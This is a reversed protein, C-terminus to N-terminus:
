ANRSAPVGLAILFMAGRDAAHPSFFEVVQDDYFTLGTAGLHLAYTALYIRGAAISAEMQALRYGRNGFARFAGPLDALSFVNVSADAALAQGLSLSGSVRRYEGAKLLELQSLERDFVYAGPQLGEVAHVTLYLLNIGGGSEPRYDLPLSGISSALITSLQKYSISERAFQRSSGRRVIVEDISDQPLEDQSLLDLAVAAEAPLGASPRYEGERWDKVQLEDGLSSAAHTEHIAPFDLEFRSIPQTELALESVDRHTGTIERDDSGVALLAVAAEQRPKLGLLENIEQDVFGMVLRAALDHANAIALSHSLITGSDWFSHRYARAQYKCANRWFVDTYVVVAQARSIAEEYGSAGALILRFDGERLVDLAMAEPDFHYVGAPLGPLDGCVVYLEIHYLAGTCAAARFPMEGWPYRLRKTIGASYFLLNTLRDLDLEAIQGGGATQGALVELTARGVPAKIEPLSLKEVDLYRKYLVPQRAPDFRHWPDMLFGNPHKTGEHYRWAAQTDQNEM